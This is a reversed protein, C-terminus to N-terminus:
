LFGTRKEAFYKQKSLGVFLALFVGIKRSIKPGAKFDQVALLWAPNTKINQIVNKFAAEM